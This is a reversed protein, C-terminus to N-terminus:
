LIKGTWPSLGYRKGDRANAPPNKVVAGGRFGVTVINLTFGIVKTETVKFGFVLSRTWVGNLSLKTAQTVRQFLDKGMM